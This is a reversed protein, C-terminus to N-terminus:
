LLTASQPGVHSKHEQLGHAVRSPAESIINCGHVTPRATNPIQNTVTASSERGAQLGVCSDCWDKGGLGENLHCSSMCDHQKILLDQVPPDTRHRCGHGEGMEVGCYIITPISSAAADRAVLDREDAM